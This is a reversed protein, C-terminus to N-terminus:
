LYLEMNYQDHCIVSPDLTLSIWQFDLVNGHRQHQFLKETFRAETSGWKM